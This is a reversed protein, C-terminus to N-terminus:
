RFVGVSQAERVYNGSDTQQCNSAMTENYTRATHGNALAAGFVSQGTIRHSSPAADDTM